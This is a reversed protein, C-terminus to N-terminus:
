PRLIVSARALQQPHHSRPIHAGHAFLKTRRRPDSRAVTSRSEGGGDVVVAVVGVGVGNGDVVDDAIGAMGGVVAVVELLVGRVAWVM